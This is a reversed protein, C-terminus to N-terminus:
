PVSLSISTDIEDVNSTSLVPLTYSNSTSLKTTENSNFIKPSSSAEVTNANHPENDSNVDKSNEAPMKDCEKDSGHLEPADGIFHYASELKWNTHNAVPDWENELQRLHEESGRLIFWWKKVVAHNDHANKYKRKVKIQDSFSTLCKLSNSVAACSTTKLTGWIRRAGSIQM